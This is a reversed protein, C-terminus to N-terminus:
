KAPPPNLGYLIYRGINDFAISPPTIWIESCHDSLIFYPYGGQIREISMSNIQYGYLYAGDNQDVIIVRRVKHVGNRNVTCVILDNQKASKLVELNKAEYSPAPTADTSVWKAAFYVVIVTILGAATIMEIFRIIKEKRTM